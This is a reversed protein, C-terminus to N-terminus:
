RKLDKMLAEPTKFRKGGGAEIERIAAATKRNPVKGGVPPHKGRVGGDATASGAVKM